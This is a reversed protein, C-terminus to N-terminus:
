SKGTQQEGFFPHRRSYFRLVPKALPPFLRFAILALRWKPSRGPLDSARLLALGERTRGELIAAHGEEGRLQEEARALMERAAREEPRGALLSVAKRYMSVDARGLSLSNASLSGARRRYEVLPRDVRAASWGAALIRIWLDMDEAAKLQEDYGGVQALVERRVTSSGFIKFQRRVVRELSIEGTQPEVSSFLKGDFQPAGFLRADCTVFGLEPDARIAALMLELYEPRYRDDGDLMSVLPAGALAIGRNRAASAGGHETEVLRIRPDGAFPRMVDAIARDGDDVVLAEWDAVTQAQLSALAEGLWPAAGYAPIIVSVSPHPQDM